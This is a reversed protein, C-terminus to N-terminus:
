FARGTRRREPEKQSGNYFVVFRPTPIKIISSSYLRKEEVMGQLLKALYFLNRLPMNPNFSSQHEYLNLYFDFVFSIDNKMNMYIANELTNIELDEENTYHTGNVANYLSLLNKKERFVMRFLRDRYCREMKM